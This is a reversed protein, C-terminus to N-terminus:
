GSAGIPSAPMAHENRIRQFRLFAERSPSSSSAVSDEPLPSIPGAGAQAEDAVSAAPTQSPEDRRRFYQRSSEAVRAFMSPTRVPRPLTSPVSSVNREPRAFTRPVSSVSREPRPVLTAPTFVRPEQSEPAQVSSIDRKQGSSPRITQLLGSLSGGRRMQEQRDRCELCKGTFKSPDKKNLFQDTPKELRCHTCTKVRPGDDGNDGGLLPDVPADGEATPNSM